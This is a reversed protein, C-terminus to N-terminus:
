VGSTMTTFRQGNVVSDPMDKDYYEQLKPKYDWMDMQSPAGSMFLYIVRKATPTHHPSGLVGGGLPGAAMGDRMLLSSLAAAGLGTASKGFFNRRTLLLEHERRPDM